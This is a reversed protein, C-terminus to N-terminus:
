ESHGVSACLLYEIIQKIFSCFFLRLNMHTHHPCLANYIQELILESMVNMWVRHESAELSGRFHAGAKWGKSALTERM